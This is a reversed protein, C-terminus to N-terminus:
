NKEPPIKPEPKKGGKPTGTSVPLTGLEIMRTETNRVTSKVAVVLGDKKSKAANLGALAVAKAGPDIAADSTAQAKEVEKTAKDLEPLWKKYQNLAERIVPDNAIAPPVVPMEMTIAPTEVKVDSLSGRQNAGTDFGERATQSAAEPHLSGLTKDTKDTSGLQDGPKINTGVYGKGLTPGPVANSENGGFAGTRTKGPSAINATFELGGGGSASDRASGPDFVLGGSSTGSSLDLAFSNISQHLHDAAADATSLELELKQVWKKGDDSLVDPDVALARKYVALATRQDGRSFATDADHKIRTARARVDVLAIVREASAIAARTKPGDYIAQKERYLRLAEAYDGRDWAASAAEWLKAIRANDEDIKANRQRRAERSEARREAERRSDGSDDSTSGGSRAECNKVCCVRIGNEVHCDTQAKAAVPILCALGLAAM